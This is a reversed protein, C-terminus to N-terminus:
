RVFLDQVFKATKDIQDASKELNVNMAKVEGISRVNKPTKVGSRVPMQISRSNALKEEVQRSLLYDIFKKASKPHPCKAIMAVTNPIVLAGIDKDGQDPYIMDLPKGDEMAGNADDTDTLGVKLEGASVQDCVMSNGAVMVVKNAKLDQLYKMAKEDGMALFLNAVHTATTGFLPNAFAVEGLWNPKTLDFISKPAEDRKVMKTNYVIVRCRAAFGAWFHEPDKFQAPIDISSPSDYPQLIDKRKLLITRVCESNWFVDAQPNDKEAILRNVLGVTKATETDYLGKVKIGTEKQFDAFIPESYIQDLSTYVVVEKESKACSIALCSFVLVVISAINKV